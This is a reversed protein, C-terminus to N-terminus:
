LEQKYVEARNRCYTYIKSTSLEPNDLQVKALCYDYFQLAKRSRVNFAPAEALIPYSLFFLFAGGLCGAVTVILIKLLEPSKWALATVAFDTTNANLKLNKNPYTM